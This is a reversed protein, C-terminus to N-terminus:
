APRPPRRRQRRCASAGRRGGAGAGPGRRRCDSADAAGALRRGRDRERLKSSARPSVGTRESARSHRCARRVRAHYLGACPAVSTPSSASSSACTAGVITARLRTAPACQGGRLAGADDHHVVSKLIRRQALIKRQQHDVAFAAEAVAPNERGTRQASRQRRLNPAGVGNQHDAAHSEVRVGSFSRASARPRGTNVARMTGSIVTTGLSRPYLTSAKAPM